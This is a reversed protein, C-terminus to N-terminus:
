QHVYFNFLLSYLVFQVIYGVTFPNASGEVPFDVVGAVSSGGMLKRGHKRRAMDRAVDRAKLHEIAMGRRPIARELRLMTPFSDKGAAEAAAEATGSSFLVLFVALFAASVAPPPTM